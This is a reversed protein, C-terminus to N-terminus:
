MGALRRCFLKRGRLRCPRGGLRVHCTQSDIEIELKRNGIGITIESESDRNGIRASTAHNM